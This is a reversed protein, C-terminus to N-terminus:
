SDNITIAPELLVRDEPLRRGGEYLPLREMTELLYMGVEIRYEGPPVDPLPLIHYHDIIVEGPQWTSTPRRGRVPQSDMQGWIKGDEGLLHTFVTYDEDIEALAQWYLTLQILKEGEPKLRWTDLDYGLLRVKQDLSVDLRHDISM